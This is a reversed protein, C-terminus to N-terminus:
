SPLAQNFDTFAFIGNNQANLLPFYVKLVIFLIIGIGM